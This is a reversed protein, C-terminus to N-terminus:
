QKKQILSWIIYVLTFPIILNYIYHLLLGPLSVPPCSGYPQKVVLYSYYNVGGYEHIMYEQQCQRAGYTPHGESLKSYGNMLIIWIVVVAISVIVKWKTPQFKM